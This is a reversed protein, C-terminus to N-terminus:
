YAIEAAAAYEGSLYRFFYVRTWPRGVHYGNNQIAGEIKSYIDIPAGNAICTSPMMALGNMSNKDKQDQGTTKLIIKLCM